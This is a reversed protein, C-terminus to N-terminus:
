AQQSSGASDNEQNAYETREYFLAEMKKGRAHMIQKHKEQLIAEGRGNENNLYSKKGPQQYL